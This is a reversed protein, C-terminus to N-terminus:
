LGGKFTFGVFHALFNIYGARSKFMGASSCLLYGIAYKCMERKNAVRTIISRWWLQRRNMM